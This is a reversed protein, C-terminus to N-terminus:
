NGRHTTICAQFHRVKEIFRVGVLVGNEDLFEKWDGFNNNVKDLCTLCTIVTETYKRGMSSLLKTEALKVLLTKVENAKAREGKTTSTIASLILPSSVINGENKLVLSEGIGIELLCVGLSYIDHQMIYDDEPNIGQRHPHRYINKEWDSDGSHLTKGEALRFTEFGTLFAWLIGTEKEGFTIINEPRINKHVFGASHVFMVAKALQKALSFREDLPRDHPEALLASRLSQPLILNEPIDFIIRTVPPQNPDEASFKAVGRCTLIGFEFPESQRLIKALSCVDSLTSVSTPVDALCPCQGQEKDGILWIEFSQDVTVQTEFLSNPLLVSSGLTDGRSEVNSKIAERLDKLTSLPEKVGGAVPGLEKDIEKSSLRIILYWSVDFVEGWEKLDLLVSKLSNKVWVAYKARKTEGKKSMLTKMSSEDKSDGVVSDILTIAAQAKGQLVQLVTNQHVQYDEDLSSWIQRLLELQRQIKIWRTEILLISERTEKDGHRYSKCAKVLIIGYKICIDALSVAGFAIEM